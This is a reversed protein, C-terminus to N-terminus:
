KLLGTKNMLKALDSHNKSYEKLIAIIKNLKTEDEKVEKIAYVKYIIYSVILAGALILTIIDKSM